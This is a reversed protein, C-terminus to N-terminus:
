PFHLLPLVRGPRASSPVAGVRRAGMALYFAEAYPDSEITIRRFGLRAATGVAHQWLRKGHGGGIAAPEVFLYLLELETGQERLGYFGVVRGDEELVFVPANTIYDPSVTLEERCAELFDADYGWHAKSWLALDSLLGADGARAPRIRAREGATDTTM